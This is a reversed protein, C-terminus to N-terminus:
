EVAKLVEVWEVNDEDWLWRTTETPLPEEKPAVWDNSDNLIWSDWPKIALLKGNEYTGGPYVKHIIDDSYEVCTKGSIEEAIELSEAKITNVINIGDIVAFNKTM